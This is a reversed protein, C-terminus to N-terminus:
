PGVGSRGCNRAEYGMQSLIQLLDSLFTIHTCHLDLQHNRPDTVKKKTQNLQAVSGKGKKAISVGTDVREETFEPDVQLEVHEVM